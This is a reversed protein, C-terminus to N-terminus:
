LDEVADVLDLNVSCILSMLTNDKYALSFMEEKYEELGQWFRDLVNDFLHEKDYCYHNVVVPVAKPGHETVLCHSICCCTKCPKIMKKRAVRAVARYQVGEGRQLRIQSTAVEHEVQKVLEGEVEDEKKLADAVKEFTNKNDVLTTVLSIFLKVLSSSRAARETFRPEKEYAIKIQVIVKWIKICGICDRCLERFLTMGQIITFGQSFCVYLSDRLCIKHCRHKSIIRQVYNGVVYSFHSHDFVKTKFIIGFEGYGLIIMDKMGGVIKFRQDELITNRSFMIRDNSNMKKTLMEMAQNQFLSKRDSNAVIM